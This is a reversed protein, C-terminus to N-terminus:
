KNEIILLATLMSLLTLAFSVTMVVRFGFVFSHDIAESLAARKAAALNEPVEIGALRGRQGDIARRVEPAIEVPTLRRDLEGNFAQLMVIGLLAIGLLGAVRSVANNVGSAVGPQKAGLANM